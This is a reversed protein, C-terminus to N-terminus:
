FGNTLALDRTYAFCLFSPLFYLLFISYRMGRRKSEKFETVIQPWYMFFFTITLCITLLGAMLYSGDFNKLSFLGEGDMKSFAIFQDTFLWHALSTTYLSTSLSVWFAARSFYVNTHDGRQKRLAGLLLFRFFRKIVM